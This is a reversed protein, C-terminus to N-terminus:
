LGLTGPEFGPGAVMLLVPTVLFRSGQKIGKKLGFVERVWERVWNPFLIKRGSGATGRGSYDKGRVEGASIIKTLMLVARFLPWWGLRSAVTTQLM